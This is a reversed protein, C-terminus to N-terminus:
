GYSTSNRMVELYNPPYQDANVILDINAKADNIRETQVSSLEAASNANITQTTNSNSIPTTYSVRVSAPYDSTGSINM